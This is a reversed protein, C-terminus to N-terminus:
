NTEYFLSNDILDDIFIKNKEDITINYVTSDINGFQLLMEKSDVKKISLPTNKYFYKKQEAQIYNSDFVLSINNNNTSNEVVRWISNRLNKNIELVKIWSNSKHKKCAKFLEELLDRNEKCSEISYCYLTINDFLKIFMFNNSIVIELSLDQIDMYEINLSKKTLKFCEDEISLNRYKNSYRILNRKNYRSLINFLEESFYKIDFIESTRNNRIYNTFTIIDKRSLKKSSICTAFVKKKDTKNIFNISINYHKNVNIITKFNNLNYVETQYENTINKRITIYGNNIIYTFKNSANFEPLRRLANLKEATTANIDTIKTVKPKDKSYAKFLEHITNLTKKNKLIRIEFTKNNQLNKFIISPRDKNIIFFSSNDLNIYEMGRNNLFSLNNNNLFIQSKRRTRLAKNKALEKILEKATNNINTLKPQNFKNISNNKILEDIIRNSNETKPITFYTQTIIKKHPCKYSINLTYFEPENKIYFNCNFKAIVNANDDKKRKIIMENNTIDIDEIKNSFNMDTNKLFYNLFNVDDENYNNLELNQYINSSFIIENELKNKAEVSLNRTDIILDEDIETDKLRFKVNNEEIKFSCPHKTTNFTINKNSNNIKDFLIKNSTTNVLFKPYENTFKFNCSNLTNITKELLKFSPNKVLVRSKIDSNIKKSKQTKKFNNLQFNTDVNRYIYSLEYLMDQNIDANSKYKKFINMLDIADLLGNHAVEKKLFFLKKMNELSISYNIPNGLVKISSSVEPQINKIRETIYGYKEQLNSDELNALLVPTDQTGWVFIDTNTEGLWKSFMEITKSFSNGEKPAKKNSNIKYFNIDTNNKIKEHSIPMVYSHFCNIHKFSKDCKIAGISTIEHFSDDDTFCNFELDLFVYDKKRHIFDSFSYKDKLSKFKLM